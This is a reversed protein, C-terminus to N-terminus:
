GKLLLSADSFFSKLSAPIHAILFIEYEGKAINRFGIQTIAGSDLVFSYNTLDIKRKRLIPTLAYALKKFEDMSLYNKLNHTLFYKECPVGKKDLISFGQGVKKKKFHPTNKM